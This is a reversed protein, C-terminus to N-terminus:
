KKLRDLLLFMKQQVQSTSGHYNNVIFSFILPRGTGTSLYGAYSCVDNIHGSKMRIRHIVPLCDHYTNYWSQQRVAYLVRAMAYSTLRNGPSLGSGDIINLAAPDIGKKDWFRKEIAVGTDTCVTEGEHLAITKVLQEGYLNISRHLFWHIISDLSPSLHDDIMKAASNIKEGEMSLQRFTSAPKLVPVGAEKLANELAHACFLAPDPVAGSVSFHKNDEPATGRIYALHTYPAAYIYTRDGSGPKGTTLENIFRLSSVPPDIGTIKVPAGVQNGPLLHMDYQNEHWTLASTGAGYYNGMDQWIWGDPPMQTDFLSADGLIRGNIKRIGAQRAARIWEQLVVAMKTSGYRWSGLMPDGSGRIILDGNLVGENINGTYLLRTHYKFDQGLLFFASAATITKQCSAPALGVDKNLSFILKGTRADLITLSTIAHTMQADSTFRAAADRTRQQLSQACLDASLITILFFLLANRLLSNGRSNNEM